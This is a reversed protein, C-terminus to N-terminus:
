NKFFSKMKQIAPEFGFKAARSFYEHSIHLDKARFESGREYFSGLTYFIVGSKEKEGIAELNDLIQSLLEKNPATNKHLHATLAALGNSNNQKASLLAYKISLDINHQSQRTDAYLQALRAQAEADGQDALAKNSKLIDKFEVNEDDINVFLIEAILQLQDIDLKRNLAKKLCGFAQKDNGTELHHLAILLLATPFEPHSSARELLEIGRAANKRINEGQLYIKGLLMLAQPHNQECAKELPLIYDETRSPDKLYFSYALPGIAEKCGNDVSQQLWHNAALIDRKTGIGELYCSGLNKMAFSNGKLAAEKFYKYAEKSDHGFYEGKLHMAGINNTAQTCGKKHAEIYWTLADEKFSYYGEICDLIEALDAEEKGTGNNPDIELEAVFQMKLHLIYDDIKSKSITDTNMKSLITTIGNLAEEYGYKYSKIFWDIADKLNDSHLAKIKGLNAMCAAINFSAGKEFWEIAKDIDSQVHLGALYMMGLSNYADYGDKNSVADLLLEYAKQHKNLRATPDLYITALNIQAQINGEEMLTIFIQEAAKYENKNLHQIAEMFLKQHNDM